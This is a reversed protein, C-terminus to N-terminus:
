LGWRPMIRRAGCGAHRRPTPKRSRHRLMAWFENVIRDPEALRFFICAAAMIGVRLRSHIRGGIRLPKIPTPAVFFARPKVLGKLEQEPCFNHACQPNSEAPPRGALVDM